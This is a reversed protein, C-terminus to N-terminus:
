VEVASEVTTRQGFWLNGSEVAVMYMGVMWLTRIAPMAKVPVNLLLINTQSIRSKGWSDRGKGGKKM